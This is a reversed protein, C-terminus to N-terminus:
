GEQQGKTLMGPGATRVKLAHHTQSQLGKSMLSLMMGGAARQTQQRREQVEQMLQESRSLLARRVRVDMGKVDSEVHAPVQQLPFLKQATSPCDTSAHCFQFNAQLGKLVGVAM